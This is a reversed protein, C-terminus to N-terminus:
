LRPLSSDWGQCFAHRKAHNILTALPQSPLKTRGLSFTTPEFGIDRELVGLPRPQNHRQRSRRRPALWSSLRRM